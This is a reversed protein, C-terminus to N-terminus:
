EEGEAKVFRELDRLATQGRGTVGRAIRHCLREEAAGLLEEVVERGGNGLNRCLGEAIGRYETLVLHALEHCVTHETDVVSRAAPLEMVAQLYEPHYHVRGWRGGELEEGDRM